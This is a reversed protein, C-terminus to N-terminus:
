TNDNPPNNRRFQMKYQDVGYKHAKAPSIPFQGKYMCYLDGYFKRKCRTRPAPQHTMRGSLIKDSAMCKHTFKSGPEVEDAPRRGLLPCDSCTPPYEAPFPIKLKRAM